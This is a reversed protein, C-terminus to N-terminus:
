RPLPQSSPHPPRTDMESDAEVRQERKRRTRESHAGLTGGMLSFRASSGSRNGKSGPLTQKLFCFAWLAFLQPNSSGASM